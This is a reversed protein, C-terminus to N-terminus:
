VARRRWVFFVFVLSLAGLTALPAEIAWVLPTLMLRVLLRLGEHSRVIEALPPSLEYYRAVLWRGIASSLLHRDRFARLTRVHPEWASGFAATAIFCDESGAATASVGHASPRLDPLADKARDRRAEWEYIKDQAARVETADEALLLFRRMERIAADFEAPRRAMQGLLLARDHYLQAYWPADRYAQAYLAVAEKYDKADLAVKARILLRRVEERVAPRQPLRKLVMAIGALAEDREDANRALRFAELYAEFARQPQDDLLAQQAKAMQEGRQALVRTEREQAIRARLAAIGGEVEWALVMAAGDSEIKNKSKNKIWARSWLEQRKIIEDIKALGKESDRAAFYPLAEDVIAQWFPRHAALHDILLTTGDTAIAATFDARAKEIEDFYLWAWARQARCMASRMGSALGQGALKIARDYDALAEKEGRWLKVLASLLVGYEPPTLSSKPKILTRADEEAAALRGSVARAIGRYLVAQDWLADAIIPEAFGNAVMRDLLDLAQPYQKSTLWEGALLLDKHHYSAAEAFGAQLCLALLFSILRAISM